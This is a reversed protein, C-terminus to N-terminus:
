QLYFVSQRKMGLHYHWLQSKSDVLSSCDRILHFWNLPFFYSCYHSSIPIQTAWQVFTQYRSPFKPIQLSIKGKQIYFCMAFRGQKFKNEWSIFYKQWGQWHGFQNRIVKFWTGVDVLLCSIRYSKSFAHSHIKPYRM